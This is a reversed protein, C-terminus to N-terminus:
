PTVTVAASDSKGDMTASVTASGSKVGKVQGTTTVTAIHTDSSQWAFARGTIPNGRADVASASLQVTKNAVVTITAPTVTVVAAPGPTVTVTSTGSKTESTATITATGTALASVLGSASVTAILPDSSTWSVARDTVVAGTTDKVTAALQVTQGSARSSTSPLITVSGVPAPTVTLVASGSKTESTATIAATGTAVAKVVGGSSVTAVETNNSSWTVIRDTVVTGNADKVTPTLTATQGAVLTMTAPLSVSAVPVATVTITSTGSKGESIAAITAAGVSVATVVGTASVTAVLDNSSTWAVLRDTVITGNADKVTTTLTTTTGAVLTKTAPVVTVSGVPVLTVVVTAAGSKGGASATITASGPAVATLVGTPSVSAVLTNSSAWTIPRDTVVTGNADTVTASLVATQGVFLNQTTPQVAVSAVPVATVTVGASGSRGESTATIMASGVSVATVVGTTGNVTAVATNNSSWTVLRDTVVTGNADKVTAALPTTQGVALSTSLPQVTVSGVPSPTVTITAGASRGESTATITATGSAVAKVVGSSSVTAVLTNSSSWSVVRDTVVVGNANKIVITLTTTQGVTLSAATPQIAVSGVPVVTVNVSTSGSKGEATASITASGPAVALVVGTTSVTAVLSNSSTWTVTRDTVVTGAADRVTATLTTSTGSLLTLSPPEIVVGGVPLRTVTVTASGSKGESTATITAVGAAIASVVGAPSVSAVLANSSAWTVERDTVITGNVDTVTATLTTTQGAPVSPAAPQVTVTGVAAGTVTILASGSKGESTATITALGPALATVTGNASVTAVLGNSSTWAVDRDTVIVHNADTVTVTLARSQGSPISLATPEVSVALVSARVVTVTASGARGESTATITASGIGAATVTGAQSVTAVKADSSTWTVVRNALPGGSGDKVAATLTTSEGVILSATSPQVAVSGVPVAAVTVVSSGSVGERTATITAQGPAVGTVVGAASVRAVADDSSSWIVPRDSRDLTAGTADKLVVDLATTEGVSVTAGTPQVLVAAVPPPQVTITATGSKGGASAAVQTTGVARGTVVGTTSVSAINPDRV